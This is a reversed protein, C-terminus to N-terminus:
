QGHKAVASLLEVYGDLIVDRSRAEAPPTGTQEDDQRISEQEIKLGVAAQAGSLRSLTPIISTLVLSLAVVRGNLADFDEETM